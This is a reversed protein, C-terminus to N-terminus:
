LNHFEKQLEELEAKLLQKLPSNLGKEDLWTMAVKYNATDKFSQFETQSDSHHALKGETPKLGSEHLTCLGNSDLFACGNETQLPQIMDVPIDCTGTVLGTMWTSLALKSAHGAKIIRLIDKPTGLCPQHKCMQKCADCACETPEKIYDVAISEKLNKM